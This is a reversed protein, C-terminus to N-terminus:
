LFNDYRYKINQFIIRNHCFVAFERQISEVKSSDNSTIADLHCLSHM